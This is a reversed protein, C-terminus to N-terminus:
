YMKQKEVKSKWYVKVINSLSGGDPHVNKVSSDAQFRFQAGVARNQPM